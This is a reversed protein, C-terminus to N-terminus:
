KSCTLESVLENRVDDFRNPKAIEDVLGWIKAREARVGESTSCFVDALDRRVKRKDIVRTLGGTGPLVGLLPVEPLSVSSSRDDIMLLKDCALALEYGGGAVTGNIAALFKLDDHRSSDEIGNRTENTFKCFNVKWPHSSQGLMYINAGSCFMREKASTIVVCKVTPHEFRIRNIADYLEIDVGLDYSNLKLKYGPKLGEDEDVAMSLTATSGEISLTWHKYQEPQTDFLVRDASLLDEKEVSPQM